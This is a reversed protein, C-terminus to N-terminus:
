EDIKFLFKIFSFFFHFSFFPFFSLLFNVQELIREFGESREKRTYYREGKQIMNDLAPVRCFFFFSLFFSYICCCCCCCCLVVVVVVVHSLM